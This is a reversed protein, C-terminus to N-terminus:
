ILLIKQNMRKMTSRWCWPGPELRRLRWCEEMVRLGKGTTGLAQGAASASAVLRQFMTYQDETAM